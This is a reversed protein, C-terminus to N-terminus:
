RLLVRLVWRARGTTVDTHSSTLSISARVSNSSNTNFIGHKRGCFMSVPMIDYSWITGGCVKDLIDRMKSFRGAGVFSYPTIACMAGATACKELFLMYLENLGSTAYADYKKGDCRGYPPNQIVMDDDNIVVDNDVSEVDIQEVQEDNRNFIDPM